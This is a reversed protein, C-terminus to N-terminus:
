YGLERLATGRQILLFTSAEDENSLSNTLDVVDTWRSTETYLEALSVAAITTPNLQEVVDIAHALEGVAQEFEALMLGIMQRDWKGSATVGTSIPVTVGPAGVYKALFTDAAPDYGVDFLWRLLARSRATDAAPLSVRILELMTATKAAEPYKVGVGHLATANSVGSTQKYLAKEWAPAM